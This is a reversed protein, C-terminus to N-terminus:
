YRIGILKAPVELAVFEHLKDPMFQKITGPGCDDSWGRGHIKILGNTVISIHCGEPPHAHMPVMDGVESFTYITIDLIGIEM